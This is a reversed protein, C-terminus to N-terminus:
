YIKLSRARSRSAGSMIQEPSFQRRFFQKATGSSQRSERKVIGHEILLDRLTSWHRDGFLRQRNDDAECLPNAREYARMLKQLLELLEDSVKRIDDEDKMEVFAGCQELIRTIKEPAYITTNGEDSLLHIGIVETPVRLGNLELRTSGIKVRPEMLLVDRANCGIFSTTGLDTRRITVNILTCDRLTVGRLDSGPFVVTSVTRGVIESNAGNGGAFERLLALVILGTNERVQTMRGWHTRGAESLRDLIEQLDALSSLRGLQRLEFALREAVFEPLASRSLIVRMDTGQVFQNVIARTLFHFFFVEHEFLISAHKESPALFALTSMREVVIQRTAEPVERDDLIYEAVERVSGRDLERTEQNWMEEALEAMLQELRGESLLPQHQRDLLKEKQERELFRHTLRGLLDDGGSFESDKCLLDVAKAFFLPKSALNENGTFVNTVRARLRTREEDPLSEREALAHLFGQRDDEGWPDIKVPIHSWARLSGRM